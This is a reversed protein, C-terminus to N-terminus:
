ETHSGTAKYGKQQEMHQPTNNCQATYRKMDADRGFGTLTELAKADLPVELRTRTWAMVPQGFLQMPVTPGSRTAVVGLAGRDLPERDPGAM